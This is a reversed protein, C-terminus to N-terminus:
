PRSIPQERVPDLPATAQDGGASGPAPLSPGIPRFLDVLIVAALIVIPIGLAWLEIRLDLIGGIIGGMLYVVWISAFFRVEHRAAARVGARAKTGRGRSIVVATMEALNTLIGTVFNTRVTRGGVRRLTVSQLGMAAALLAAVVFYAGGRSTDLGAGVLNRSGVVTAAVLSALEVTLVISATSRVARRYATEIIVAGLTAAVMYAAIPTTRHLADLWQSQAIDVGLGVSNGSMHATFLRYLTLYGVADVFGAIWAFVLALSSKDLDSLGARDDNGPSDSM